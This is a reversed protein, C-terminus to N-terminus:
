KQLHDEETKTREFSDKLVKLKDAKLREAYENILRLQALRSQALRKMAGRYIKQMRGIREQTMEDDLAPM